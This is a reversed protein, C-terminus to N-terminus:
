RKIDKLKSIKAFIIHYIDAKPRTFMQIHIFLCDHCKKLLQNIKDTNYSYVNYIETM